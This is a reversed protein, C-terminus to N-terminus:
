YRHGYKPLIIKQFREVTVRRINGEILSKLANHEFGLRNDWPFHWEAPFVQFVISLGTKLILAFLQVTAMAVYM